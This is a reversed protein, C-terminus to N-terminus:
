IFKVAGSHPCACSFFCVCYYILKTQPLSFPSHLRFSLPPSASLFVEHTCVKVRLWWKLAAANVSTIPEHSRKQPKPLRSYPPLPACPCNSLTTPHLLAPQACPHPRRSEARSDATSFDAAWKKFRPAEPFFNQKKVLLDMERCSLVHSPPLFLALATDEVRRSVVQNWVIVLQMKKKKQWWPTLFAAKEMKGRTSEGGEGDKDGTWRVKFM